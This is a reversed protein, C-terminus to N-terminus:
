YYNWRTVVCVYGYTTRIACENLAIQCAMAYNGSYGEGYAYPSQAVCHIGSIYQAKEVTQPNVTAATAPSVLALVSAVLLTLTKM